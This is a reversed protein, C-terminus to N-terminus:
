WGSCWRADLSAVHLLDKAAGAGSLVRLLCDRPRLCARPRVCLAPTVAPSLLLFPIPITAPTPV